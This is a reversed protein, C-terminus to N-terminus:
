SFLVDKASEVMLSVAPHRIRRETSIAYYRDRVTELEGIARVGHQKQVEGAVVTPAAFVGRGAQGFVKILASDQFDGVTIPKVGEREFWAELSGRIATNRTPMLFPAGTLSHPFGRKLRRALTPAAFLTITSEGVLHNYAKVDLGPPLAIDSLVLDVQHVALQAFLQEPHGESVELAVEEDFDLVPLLLHFAVLKPMVDAIAVRFRRPRGAPRGRVVDVLERGTRFIEEAYDFVLRGTDTMDLHRGRREFLPEGLFAELSKLQASIAPRGVHLRRGAASISGEQVVVWFYHLHHYNLWEM